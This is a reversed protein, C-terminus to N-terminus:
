AVGKKSTGEDADSDSHRAEGLSCPEENRSHVWSVAPVEGKTLRDIRVALELSPVKRGNCLLSLYSISVKLDDAWERRSKQSDEIHQKLM